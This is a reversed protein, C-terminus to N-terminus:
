ELQVGKIEFHDHTQLKRRLRNYADALNESGNEPTFEVEGDDDEDLALFNLGDFLTDGELTSLIKLQLHLVVNSTEELKFEFPIGVLERDKPSDILALFSVTQEHKTATGRLLATHGRLPDNEQLEAEGARSFIFNASRYQGVILSAEGLELEEGPLWDLLFRGRMEGTIDGGQYHGPHALADPVLWEYSRRLLSATHLEGAISFTLDRVMIRAETLDVEYDLDTTLRSVVTADVAVPVDVRVPEKPGSCALTGWSSLAWFAKQLRMSVQSKRYSVLEINPM